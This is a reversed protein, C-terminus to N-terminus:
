SPRFYQQEIFSSGTPFYVIYEKTKSHVENYRVEKNRGCRQVTVAFSNHLLRQVLDHCVRGLSGDYNCMTERCNAIGVANGHNIVSLNSLKTSVIFEHVLGVSFISSKMVKLIKVNDGLLASVFSGLFFKFTFVFVFIDLM